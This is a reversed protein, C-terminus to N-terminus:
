QTVLQGINYKDKLIRLASKTTSQYKRCTIQMEDLMLKFSAYCISLSTANITARMAESISM